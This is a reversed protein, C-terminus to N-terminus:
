VRPPLIAGGLRIALFVEMKRSAISNNKFWPKKTSWFIDGSFWAQLYCCFQAVCLICVNTSATNFLYIYIYIYKMITIIIDLLSLGYRVRACSRGSSM